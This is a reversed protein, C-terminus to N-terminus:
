PNQRWHFHFVSGNGAAGMTIEVWGRRRSVKLGKKKATDQQQQARRRGGSEGSGIFAVLRKKHQM